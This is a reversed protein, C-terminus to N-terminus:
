IRKEHSSTLPQPTNHRNDNELAVWKQVVHPVQQLQASTGTWQLQGEGLVAVQDALAYAMAIKQEILLLACGAAKVRALCQQVREVMHPSLGETPEDVVLLLPNALLSRALSLMQQEGGSLSGAVTHRRAALQPFLEYVAQENWPTSPRQWQALPVGLALNQQVTLSKFVDRTEPVYALGRRARQHPAIAQMDQGQWALQGLYPLQGVLVKALTSRGSGNRGLLAWAQGPAISLNLGKLVPTGGYGARLHQVSLLPVTPAPSVPPFTALPPEALPAAAQLPLRTDHPRVPANEPVNAVAMTPVIPLADGLYARRVQENHAIAQPTDCAILRGQDLVAIREALAFVVQLDHEVLLLACGAPLHRLVQLMRETEAPNLGACPEDLVLLRPSAALAMAVELFRQEGYALAGAALHRKELLGLPALLAEHGGHDSTAAVGMGRVRQWWRTAVPQEALHACLLNEEVSLHAFCTSRQFGMGLGRHARQEPPFQSVQQGALTISGASPKLQGGVLQLLTSKGAGNAGILAVREGPAISLDLPHLAVFDGYSKALGELKLAQM